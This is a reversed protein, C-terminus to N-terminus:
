TPAPPIAVETFGDPEDNEEARKLDQAAGDGPKQKKKEQEKDTDKSKKDQEKSDKSNKEKEKDETPKAETTTAQQPLPQAPAAGHEGPRDIQELKQEPKKEDSKGVCASDSVVFPSAVSHLILFDGFDIPISFFFIGSAAVLM